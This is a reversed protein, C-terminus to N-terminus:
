SWNFAAKQRLASRIEDAKGGVESYLRLAEDLDKKAFADNGARRALFAAAACMVLPSARVRVARVLSAWSVPVDLSLLLPLLLLSTGKKAYVEHLPYCSHEHHCPVVDCSCGVVFLASFRHVASVAQPPCWYELQHKRDRCGRGCPNGFM